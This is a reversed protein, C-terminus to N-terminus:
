THPPPANLFYNCLSAWELGSHVKIDWLSEWPITCDEAAGWVCTSDAVTIEPFLMPLFHHLIASSLFEILFLIWTLPLIEPSFSLLELPFSAYQAVSLRIRLGYLYLTWLLSTLPQPISPCNILLNAHLCGASSSIVSPCPFSLFIFDM